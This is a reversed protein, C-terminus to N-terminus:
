QVAAFGAVEHQALLPVLIRVLEWWHGLAPRALNKLREAMRPDPHGLRGYEVVAVSGLLKLSAEWAYFAAIHRDQPTKANHARRYLQALPLPLHQILSEDLVVEALM